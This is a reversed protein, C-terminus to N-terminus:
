KTVICGQPSQTKISDCIADAQARSLPGAQIRYFTGRAGLDAAQVRHAMGSLESAYVKQYRKWEAAAGSASQVSGLQVFYNRKPAAGIAAGAAPEINQPKVAPKQSEAEQRELVSRVFAITEPSSGASHIREPKQLPQSPAAIASNASRGAAPEVNAPKVAEVRGIERPASLGAQFTADDAIDRPMPAVLRQDQIDDLLNEVRGGNPNLADRREDIMDFITSDESALEIGGQNEPIIKFPRQEAQVIPVPQQNNQSQMYSGIMIGTFVAGVTGLVLVASLPSLLIDKLGKKKPKGRPEMDDFHDYGFQSFNNDYGM